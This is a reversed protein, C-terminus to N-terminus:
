ERERLRRELAAVRRGLEDLRGFRLANRKWQLSPSHLVGGSYIGPQTISASVHTMGSVVVRDALEIPRDGGIGVGGALVCHRGIRTSGVIGVCGCIVSHAGIRCNHGIQVQNDIKVGDEIVTDDLAGRDISTCAGISVDDGITVGGLQAIAELHGDEAPTFGFGDAGIVAGSHVVCRAGLKVDAYLVVNPMLVSGTGIRCNEGVVANAYLRAEDAVETGAGIVVHPGVRATPSVRATPDVSASPHIGEALEPLRAFRQSVRAFALYPNDTVLAAGPWLALDPEALILASARCRALLPRYAPSSLHSIEGPEAHELSGIGTIRLAPDGRVLRAGLADALEGLTFGSSDM